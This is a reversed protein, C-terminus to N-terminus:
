RQWHLRLSFVPVPGRDANYAPNQVVQVDSTLEVAHPLGIKYYAEVIEEPARRTLRGDGILIGLGGADFYAAHVASIDNAAFALAAEDAKRGWRDGKVSVGFSLTRDIDTYEYSEKTGDDWGARLFAGVGDAVEQQLNVSGGPRSDYRRVRATDAPARTAVALAIAEANTAMRGRTVFVDARAVGPRGLLTFRREVEGVTQFQTLDPTLHPSNPVDSLDFLGLRFTWRGRYLEATAGYTYGWADAAYDFSGATILSWNLFDGRPDHAYPNADFIDTANYKGVTVVLRDASQAGALQNLDAKVPEADGGLDITQRVFVRQFRTYPHAKGVKAGDGNIYGAIGLTNNPAIGQNLEPDVWLEAGPWLRAGFYATFDVTNGTHNGSDFSQPGQYASAFAPHWQLIDTAQVHWAFREPAPAPEAARDQARVAAPTAAILAALLVAAGIPRGQMWAM